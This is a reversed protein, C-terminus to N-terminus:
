GRNFALYILGPVAMGGLAAFAPLLAQRPDRLEGELLERKIEMGVVFFFAAMLGDDILTRLTTQFGHGGVSLQVPTEWLALFSPGWPSTALAFALVAPAFLAIGGAAEMRTFARLPDLVVAQFLAPPRRHAPEAM